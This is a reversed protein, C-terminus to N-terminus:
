SDASNEKEANEAREATFVKALPEYMRNLHLARLEAPGAARGFVSQSLAQLTRQFPERCAQGVHFLFARLAEPPVGERWAFTHAPTLGHAAFDARVQTLRQQIASALAASRSVM